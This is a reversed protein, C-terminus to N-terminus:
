GAILINPLDSEEALEAADPAPLLKDEMMAIAGSISKFAKVAAKKCEDLAEKNEAQWAKLESMDRASKVAAIFSRGFAIYDTRDGVTPVPIQHPAVEGTAPDHPPEAPPPAPMAAAIPAPTRAPTVDTAQRPEFAAVEEPVYMGSTAAPCVTRVGESVVRSRLMQRPYKKYMDKGTLGAMKARDLDWTIRVTGGSSHSFTADANTDSLEHWEVKGGAEIFDRLMAEATKAPRGNIVDYDRAALAPHRGEAQAVLCLAIAQEPTKMGFLGSRAIAEGMARIDSVTFLAIEKSM